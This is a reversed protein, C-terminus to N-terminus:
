LPPERTDIVEGTEDDRVLVAPPGESADRRLSAGPGELRFWGDADPAVGAFKGDEGLRELAVEKTDRHVIVSERVGVMEYFPQKEGADDGPSHIEVVLDPGGDAWLGDYIHLRGKSFFSLDPVRYNSTGSGPERVNIELFVRGRRNRGVIKRLAAFLGGQLSVHEGASAPGMHLVGEWSEDHKWAGTKKRWDIIWEPVDLFVGRM